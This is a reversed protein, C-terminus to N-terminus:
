KNYHKIKSKRRTTETKKYYNYLMREKERLSLGLLSGTLAVVPRLTLPFHSGALEKTARRRSAMVVIIKEEKKRTERKRKRQKNQDRKM